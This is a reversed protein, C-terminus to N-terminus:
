SIAKLQREVASRVRTGYEEETWNERVGLIARAFDVRCSSGGHFSRLLETFGDLDDVEVSWEKLDPGLIDNVAGTRTALFPLGVAAAEILVRGFGECYSPSVLADAEMFLTSLRESSVNIHRRVGALPALLREVLPDLERGVVDLVCGERALGSKAWAEILLPVGKRLGVAGVFLYRGQYASERAPRPTGAVGYGVVDISMSPDVYARISDATYRSATWVGTAQTLARNLREWGSAELPPDDWSAALDPYRAAALRRCRDVEQPHPHAVDIVVPTSTKLVELLELAGTEAAIVLEPCLQRRILRAAARASHQMRSRDFRLRAPGM